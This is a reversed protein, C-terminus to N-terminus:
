RGGHNHEAAALDDILAFLNGASGAMSPDTAYKGDVVLMPVNNVQYRETLDEAHQVQANVESSTYAKAFDDPSIGNARAFAQQVRLTEEDSGGILVDGHQITEFAKQVLDEHHLALLTYFLRAHARHAPGWMVPVRVFEVYSPKSQLWKQLAPELAYCHPCGLWFVELVEVKGPSVGTTQAPVLPQYSSGPKWRGAPLQAEPPLAALHELSRDSQDQSRDDEASGMEDSDVGANIAAGGAGATAAHHQASAQPAAAAHKVKTAAHRGCGAVCLTFAALLALTWATAAPRARM